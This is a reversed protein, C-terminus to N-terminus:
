PPLPKGKRKQVLRDFVEFPLLVCKQRSRAQRVPSFAELWLAPHEEKLFAEAEKKYEGLRGEGHNLAALKLVTMAAQCLICGKVEYGMAGLDGNKWHIDITVRDGCLPNDMTLSEKPEALRIPDKAQRALDLLRQHYLAQSM